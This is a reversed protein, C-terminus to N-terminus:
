SAALVEIGVGHKSTLIRQIFSRCVDVADGNLRTPQSRRIRALLYTNTAVQHITLANIAGQRNFMVSKTVTNTREAALEFGVALIIGEIADAVLQQDHADIIDMSRLWSPLEEPGLWIQGLYRLCEDAYDIAALLGPHTIDFEIAAETM